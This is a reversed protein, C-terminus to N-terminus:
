KAALINIQEIVPPKALLRDANEMLAKAIPGSLHAQRGEEQEFTDFIGFTTENIKIAYWTVTQQELQALQVANALFHEVEEVMEPKAEMRALLGLKVM